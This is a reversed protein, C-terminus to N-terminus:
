VQLKGSRGLLENHLFGDVRLVVVDLGAAGASRGPLGARGLLLQVEFDARVAVREKRSPLLEDVRFAADLAERLLEAGLRRLAPLLCCLRLLFCRGSASWRGSSARSAIGCPMAGRLRRERRLRRCRLCGRPRCTASGISTTFPWPRPLRAGSTHRAVPYRWCRGGDCRLVALARLADVRMASPTFAPDDLTRRYASLRNAAVGTTLALVREYAAEARAPEGAREYIRGLALAERADGTGDAGANLLTLMRATVGALSLLDLRNHELVDALPQADGTRVFQFYRAPIEFGPVDGTRRAGLLHQELAILSCGLDGLSGWFRRAPHLVDLHPVQGCPSELRHFLYRTEIVPADFSKGNYTVLAGARSLEDAVVALMGREGAYGTMLHQECVFADADFWGFGVLFAHTGAGGSLGTTELDFFVFPPRPPTACVLAAASHMDRLAQSVDGVRVRGYSTDADYRRRVVFSRASGAERWEGGLVQELAGESEAPPAVPPAPLRAAGGHSPSIIGRLRDRLRGPDLTM